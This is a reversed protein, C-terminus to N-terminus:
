SVLSYDGLALNRVTLVRLFHPHRVRRLRESMSIMVASWPHSGSGRQSVVSWERSYTGITAYEGPPPAPTFRPTRSVKASIPCVMASFKPPVIGCPLLKKLSIVRWNAPDGRYLLSLLQTSRRSRLAM